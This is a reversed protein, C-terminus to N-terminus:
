KGDKALVAAAKEVAEEPSDVRTVWGRKRYRELDSGVDFALTIVHKDHKLALVIESLTGLAGPCAIVVDSSMVNIVNRADGMGTVVAVDVDPAAKTTTTDRLIGIVLGKAGRRIAEQAGRASAAMVGTNRGGNLLVWGREAILEGLRRATEVVEPTAKSGGMVGVVPKRM